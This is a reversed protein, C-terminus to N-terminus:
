RPDKTVRPAPAAAPAAPTGAARLMAQRAARFETGPAWEPWRPGSAVALGVRFLARLDAVAGALNWDPGIEDSPKHYDQEEFREWRAAGWGAPRGVFDVGSNVYLAPVGKKAFEFHDSRYFFGKEPSPDPRITRGTPALVGRLVDDLSSNGLGVVTLDRTPGWPNLEDMNLDALTTALPWLPNEAYYKAGLLGREEGTVALFLLSRAPRAAAPLRTFAEALQVLGATGTANDLAGNFVQDGARTTDRGFHDWHATYVVHEGARAPDRGVLRAVVNRSRVERTTNRVTLSATTGALPVARFGRTAARQRLADFDQGALRLLERARAETLWAEVTVRPPEGGPSRIDFNERGWSGSVVEWPYGAPGTEHVIIAAAAGRRTAEEYKYTWRGYYTMARGRFMATDLAAAGTDAAAAGARRVPPDNVLIVVTKGRVDVGAYDDWGFEPAVVGYGVFVVESNAVVSEPAAHRAVAVVDTLPTLPLARGGVEFRSVTTTGSYGVLTVDQVYSGDPNGPALGLRRFEGTLWAVTSDEGPTGPSRGAFADSSLTRVRALLADATIGALAPRLAAPTGPPLAPTAMAPMAPPPTAPPAAPRQQAALAAPLHLAPALLAGAALARLTPRAM